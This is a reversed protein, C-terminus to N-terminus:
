AYSVVEIEIGDADHFYFRRGPEYDAHNHPRFGRDKVKAEVADLDDVVVGLHNLGGRTQYSAGAQPVVQGPESGSYVAVYSDDNGVHVSYGKGGLAPGEWRIHWGFLDQLMAATQKPDSVTLNVHELHAM